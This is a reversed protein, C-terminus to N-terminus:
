ENIGRLITSVKWACGLLLIAWAIGWKDAYVALLLAPITAWASVCFRCDLLRALYSKVGIRENLWAKLPEM